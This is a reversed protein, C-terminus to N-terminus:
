PADHSQSRQSHGGEWGALSKTGSGSRPEAGPGARRLTQSAEPPREHRPGDVIALAVVPMPRGRANDGIPRRAVSCTPLARGGVRSPVEDRVRVPARGRAERKPLRSRQRRVRSPVHLREGSAPGIGGFFPARPLAGTLTLSSTGLLTPPRASGVNEAARSCSRTLLRPRCPRDRRLVPGPASGRDPDPVFDRAPHAPPCEWREGECSPGYSSSVRTRCPGVGAASWTM